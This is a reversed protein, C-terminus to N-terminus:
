DRRQLNDCNTKGRWSASEDGTTISGAFLQGCFYLNHDMRDARVSFLASFIKATSNSCHTNTNKNSNLASSDLMNPNLNNYHKVKLFRNTPKLNSHIAFRSAQLFSYNATKRISKFVTSVQIVLVNMDNSSSRVRNVFYRWNLHGAVM